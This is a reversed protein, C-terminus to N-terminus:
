TAMRRIRLSNIFSDMLTPNYAADADPAMKMAHIIQLMLIKGSEKTEEEEEEEEEEEKVVVPPAALVVIDEQLEEKIEPGIEEDPLDGHSFVM